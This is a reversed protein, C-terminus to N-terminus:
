LSSLYDEIPKMRYKTALSLATDGGFTKAGLDAGAGVLLKVASRSRACLHSAGHGRARNNRGPEIRPGPKRSAGM